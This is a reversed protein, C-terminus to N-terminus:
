RGGLTPCSYHEEYTNGHNRSATWDQSCIWCFIHGCNPGICRMYNCGRVRTLHFKCKPCGRVNDPLKGGELTGYKECIHDDTWMVKDKYCYDKLCGTCSVIPTTNGGLHYQANWKTYSAHYNDIRKICLRVYEDEDKKDMWKLVDKDSVLATCTPNLCKVDTEGNNIHKKILQRLHEPCLNLKHPCSLKPADSSCYNSCNSQACASM